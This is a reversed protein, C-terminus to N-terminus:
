RGAGGVKGKDYLLQIDRETYTQREDRFYIKSAGRDRFVDAWALAGIPLYATQSEKGYRTDATIHFM